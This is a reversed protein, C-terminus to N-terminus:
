AIIQSEVWEWYGLRTDGNAIEYQWDETLHDPHGGWYGGNAAELAELDLDAAVPHVTDFYEWFDADGEDPEDPLNALAIEQHIYNQLIENCRETMTDRLDHAAKTLWAEATERNDGFPGIPLDAVSYKIAFDAM